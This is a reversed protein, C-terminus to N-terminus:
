GAQFEQMRDELSELLSSFADAFAKVGEDELEQTVARLDIGLAELDLFAQKAGSLDKDITRAVNGHDYFAALTQPPVTNVTDPGILEEVYITDRYAPNKTSTSAWLARQRNAGEAQLALYRNDNEFTKQYEAFALKGSAVAAKGYLLQIKEQINPSGSHLLVDLRQDVKTDIRSIFFSAVSAVRTIDGGSDVRKELGALYAERVERYRDLSFVLTVNINIGASIAETIAPLGERTAPIKVMLNPRAVAQWIKKAERITKETDYALYPSVELSVYGDGGSTEDYLERFLDAARQIDKIALTEYVEERSLNRKILLRIEDEYDSSQSIAKNFISPNSTIGRIEGHQIMGALTGDDLLKREINDYWISQGIQNIKEVVSKM